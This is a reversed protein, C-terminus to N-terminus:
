SLRATLTNISQHQLDLLLVTLQLLRQLALSPLGHDAGHGDGVLHQVELLHKGLGLRM